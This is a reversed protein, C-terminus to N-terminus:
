QEPILSYGQQHGESLKTSMVISVRIYPHLEPVFQIITRGNPVWIPRM